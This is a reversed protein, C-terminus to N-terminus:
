FISFVSFQRTQLAKRWLSVSSGVRCHFNPVEFGLNLSGVFGRRLLFQRLTLIFNGQYQSLIPVLPPIKHFRFHFKPNWSLGFKEVLKADILKWSLGQVV